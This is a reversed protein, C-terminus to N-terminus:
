SWVLKPKLIRKEMIVLPMAQIGYCVAMSASCLRTCVLIKMMFSALVQGLADYFVFMISESDKDGTILGDRSAM